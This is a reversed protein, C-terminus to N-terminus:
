KRANITSEGLRLIYIVGTYLSLAVHRSDSAWTEAAVYEPLSWEHLKRKDAADWVIIRNDQGHTLLYRGDPSCQMRYFHGVEPKWSDM